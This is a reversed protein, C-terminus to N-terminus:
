SVLELQESYFWGDLYQPKLFEVYYEVKKKKFTISLVKGCIGLEKVLVKSKLPIISPKKTKLM